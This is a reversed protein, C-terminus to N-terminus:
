AAARQAHARLVALTGAASRDWTFRAARALGRRQRDAPDPARLIRELAAVMSAADRPDFTEALGGAVEALAGAGSTAVLTGSAMAELVPLGFGEFLSPTVAADALRYLGPLDAGPVRGLFRIRTAVPSQAARTHVVEAGSWDPGALVLDHPHGAAVLAEFAELLRVHNKGPHEIRSVYLLVPRELYYRGRLRAEEGAPGAPRFTELDVGNPVVTVRSPDVGALDRLDDRTSRSVAILARARRYLAPLIRTTYLQRPGDYKDPLHCPALDHVTAVLPGALDVPLRRNGAPLFVVDPRARRRWLPLGVQHWAINPIPASYRDPVLHLRVRPDPKPLFAAWEGPHALLDVELGADQRLM